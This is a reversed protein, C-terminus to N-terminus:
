RVRDKSPCQWGYSGLRVSSLKVAKSFKVVYGGAAAGGETLTITTLATDPASALALHATPGGRSPPPPPPSSPSGDGDDDTVNLRIVTNAIGSDGYSITLTFRENDSNTATEQPARIFFAKSSDGKSARVFRTAPTLGAIGNGFEIPQRANGGTLVLRVSSLKVAKSFKVVYGASAAGGEVLTITTLATNPASALALHATPGGRSPPPPPPSSPSGDGDDDTVNLTIVTNAIGSDGYSITLTFRENDSNTATEQPARIFFAKSSDGKSARVFTKAVALGAIGNGFEIKQRANGGTLVLRVSSLKVAKSFKVVYGGAAAGGETLTISTVPVAPASALALHATTGGRSPPPPPPSSPSGDGDDDTVNLRIVTNAIGSDGYSITLTFRENDSNTATEQPARIFFAKSSDGKSARVFRTAPTLGAVGNGFEIPQRANGGTLVLRVSSLKVAKSFKVVYGASAEGGEVLTITTLATNPASALALHATPGASADGDDDTVNLTIVTNAIGSDGYSITLTFRENDSNTATEQPARIFFAKSSDGKSARVFRTAVALSPIGNGFEIPQRANGGTLVLRVSSLKVAKSFKVVYGASAAGGETLTITTLATNPASALALHATPGASADGDDDTVNLRIVTNAIGSDGYSITLTFRENDSNTATEQPARIFFAKSSDGKSARVFRTAPTLSPVGNGFEIPQRANGGTLVLRVSSLKVAKSFKVVYGGAAAGGEVLTITTLATNPASALALHATPGGRSPPPPPPSSPSGDGEDDTVNLRIVTNAIGSDGYSITLTFRENDSNTATEQPARIFFAKSSDGKSARVFRTAPALGVIGNGFEIPQRANGGTLVLRVSSLKVAKSFKVVYGASAAGM